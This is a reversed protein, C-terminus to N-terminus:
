SRCDPVENLVTRMSRIIYLLGSSNTAAALTMRIHFRRTASVSSLAESSMIRPSEASLSINLCIFHWTARSEFRMLVFSSQPVPLASPGMSRLLNSSALRSNWCIRYRQLSPSVSLSTGSVRMCDSSELRRSPSSSMWAKSVGSSSKWSLSAPLRSVSNMASTHLSVCWNTFPWGLFWCKKWWFRCLSVSQCEWLTPVAAAMAAMKRPLRLSQSVMGSCSTKSTPLDSTAMRRLPSFNAGWFSSKRSDMMTAPWRGITRLLSIMRVM